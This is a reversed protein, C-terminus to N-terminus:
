DAELDSPQDYPSIDLPPTPEARGPAGRMGGVRELVEAAGSEDRIVMLNDDLYTVMLSRTLQLQSPM